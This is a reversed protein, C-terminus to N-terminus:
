TANLSCGCLRSCNVPERGFLDALPHGLDVRDAQEVCQVSRTRVDPAM